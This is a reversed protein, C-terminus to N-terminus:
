VAQTVDLRVTTMGSVDARRTSGVYDWSFRVDTDFRRSSSSHCVDKLSAQVLSRGLLPSILGSVYDIVSAM